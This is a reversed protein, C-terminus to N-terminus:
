WFTFDMILFLFSFLSTTKFREFFPKHRDCKTIINLCKTIVIAIQLFVNQLLSKDGNCNVYWLIVIFMFIVIFIALFYNDCKTIIDIVNQSSIDYHVLYSVAVM